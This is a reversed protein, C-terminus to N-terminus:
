TTPLAPPVSSTCIRKLPRPGCLQHILSVNRLHRPRNSSPQAQRYKPVRDRQRSALWRWLAVLHAAGVMLSPGARGQPARAVGLGGSQERGALDGAAQGALADRVPPREAPGFLHSPVQRQAEWVVTCCCRGSGPSRCPWGVRGPARPRAPDVRGPRARRDLPADLHDSAAARPQQGHAASSLLTPQRAWRRWRCGGGNVPSEHLSCRSASSPRGRSNERGYIAM